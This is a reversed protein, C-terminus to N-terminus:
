GAQVNESQRQGPGPIADRDFSGGFITDPDAIGAVGVDRSFGGAVGGSDRRRSHERPRSSRACPQHNVNEFAEREGAPLPSAGGRGGRGGEGDGREEARGQGGLVDGGGEED